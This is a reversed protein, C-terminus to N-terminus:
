IGRFKIDFKKAIAKIADEKGSIYERIGGNKYKGKHENVWLLEERLVKRLKKLTDM